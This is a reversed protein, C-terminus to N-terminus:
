ESNMRHKLDEADAAPETGGTAGDAEEGARPGDDADVAEDADADGTGVNGNSSIIEDDM